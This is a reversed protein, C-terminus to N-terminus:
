GFRYAIGSNVYTKHHGLHDTASISRYEAELIVIIRRPGRGQDFFGCRLRASSLGEHGDRNYPMTRPVVALAM